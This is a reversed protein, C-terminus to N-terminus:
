VHMRELIKNIKDKRKTLLIDNSEGLYFEDDSLNDDIFLDYGMLIGINGNSIISSSLPNILIVNTIILENFINFNIYINPNKMYENLYGNVQHIISSVIKRSVAFTDDLANNSPQISRNVNYCKGM